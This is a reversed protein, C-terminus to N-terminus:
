ELIWIFLCLYHLKLNTVTYSHSKFIWQCLLAYGVYICHLSHCIIAYRTLYKHLCIFIWWILIKFLRKLLSKSLFEFFQNSMNHSIVQHKIWVHMIRRKLKKWTFVIQFIAYSESSNKEIQVNTQYVWILIQRLFRNREYVQLSNPFFFLM